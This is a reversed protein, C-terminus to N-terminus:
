KPTARSDAQPLWTPSKLVEYTFITAMDRLWKVLVWTEEHALICDIESIEPYDGLSGVSSVRLQREHSLGSLTSVWISLKCGNLNFHTYFPNYSSWCPLHHIWRQFFQVVATLLVSLWMDCGSTVVLFCGWPQKPELFEPLYSILIMFFKRVQLCFMASLLYVM